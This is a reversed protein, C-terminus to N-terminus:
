IRKRTLMSLFTPSIKKMTNFVVVCITTCLLPSLFYSFILGIHYMDCMFIKESLTKSFTLISFKFFIITHIAYLFFSVKSLNSQPINREKIIKSTINIISIVGFICYINVTIYSIWHGDKFVTLFFMILSIVISTSKLKHCEAIPNKDTLKLYAGASFFFIGTTGIGPLSCINLIFLIALFVIFIIGIKKIGIYIVPSLFILIILDRLFWLPFAIPASVIHNIPLEIISNNSWSTINWFCSLVYQIDIFKYTFPLLFFIAILNWLIYPIILTKSKQKIKEKYILATFTKERFFYYGSTFFFFPVAIQSFYHGSRAIISYIASININYIDINKIPIFLPNNQPYVHILVVLISLPFRLHDITQSFLIVNSKEGDLDLQKHNKM